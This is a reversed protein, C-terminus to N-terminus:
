PWRVWGLVFLLLGEIALTPWLPGDWRVGLVLGALGAIVLGAGVPALLGPWRRLRSWDRPRDLYARESGCEPCRADLPLGTRDYRCDKCRILVPCDVAAIREPPLRAEGALKM